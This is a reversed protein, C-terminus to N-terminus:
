NEKLLDALLILEEKKYASEVTNFCKSLELLQLRIIQLNSLPKFYSAKPEQKIKQFYIDIADNSYAKGTLADIYFQIFKKPHEKTLSPDYDLKYFALIFQRPISIVQVPVMLMECLIQYLIGNAISNGKKSEIVKHLFFNDPNNYKMEIGKLNFYNYLMSNLVNAQEFATLFHNLELWISKRIANLEKMVQNTDLDPYHYKSVLLSGYLLDPSGCNKWDSFEKYLDKFHLRHILMEIREQVDNSTTNEWLNELNPVISLGFEEIKSSVSTYVEEDPDDVLTLLASIEKTEVM